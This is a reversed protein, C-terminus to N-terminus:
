VSTQKMRADKKLCCFSFTIFLCASVFMRVCLMFFLTHCYIQWKRSCHQGDGGRLGQGREAKLTCSWSTLNIFASLPTGFPLLWIYTWIFGGTAATPIYAMQPYFALNTQIHTISIIHIYMQLVAAVSHFLCCSQYLRSYIVRIFWSMM